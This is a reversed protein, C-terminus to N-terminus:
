LGYFITQLLCLGSLKHDVRCTLAVSRHGCLARDQVKHNGTERLNIRHVLEGELVELLHPALRGKVLWLGCKM